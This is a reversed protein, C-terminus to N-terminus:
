DYKLATINIVTKENMKTEDTNFIIILMSCM